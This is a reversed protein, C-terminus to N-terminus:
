NPSGLLANAGVSSKVLWALIQYVIFWASLMIIFGIGTKKFIGVARTIDSPSGKVYLFGAFSFSVIAAVVGLAIMVNILWQAQKMLTAFNCPVYNQPMGPYAPGDCVVLRFGPNTINVSDTGSQAIVPSSPVLLFSSLAFISLLLSAFITVTIKKM